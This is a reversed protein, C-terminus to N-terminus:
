KILYHAVKNLSSCNSSDVTKSIFITTINFNNDYFIDM